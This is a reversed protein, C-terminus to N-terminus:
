AQEAEDAVGFRKEYEESAEVAELISLEADAILLVAAQYCDAAYYLKDDIYAGLMKRDHADRKDQVKAKVTMRAKLMASALKGRNEEDVIRVQEQLAAVDGKITSIKDKIVEDRLERSAKADESAAAAKRSLDALDESLKALREDWKKAM